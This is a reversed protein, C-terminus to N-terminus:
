HGVLPDSRGGFQELMAIIEDGHPGGGHSRRIISYTGFREFRRNPDAGRELLARVLEPRGHRAATLLPGAVEDGRPAEPDAGSALLDQALDDHRNTIALILPTSEGCRADLDAGAAILTAAASRQGHRAAMALATCGERPGEAIGGPQSTPTTATLEQRQDVPVGATLLATIIGTSGYRGALPLVWTEPAGREDSVGKALCARLVLPQDERIARSLSQRDNPCLAPSPANAPPNEGDGAALVTPSSPEVEDERAAGALPICGPSPNGTVRLTVLRGVVQSVTVDLVMHADPSTFLVGHGPELASRLTAAVTLETELWYLDIARRELDDPGVASRHKAALLPWFRDVPLEATTALHSWSETALGVPRVDRAHRPEVAIEIGAHQEAAHAREVM